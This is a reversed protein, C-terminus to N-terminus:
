AFLEPFLPEINNVPNNNHTLFQLEQIDKLNVRDLYKSYNASIERNFYELSLNDIIKHINIRMLLEKTIVRKSDFFVLSKLLNKAYISNLAIQVIISHTIDNFGLFYCTDDLMIPKNNKPLVLSFNLNKYFGSIAVKYLSFTYDGIGFISFIPRNNYIKSKRKNFLDLNSYLYRYTLPLTERIYKTCGGIRRQPIITYKNTNTVILRNLDSSKVLGYVLDEELIFKENKRNVYYDDIKEIEMIPACDHKVGQRWILGSDGDFKSNNLYLEIDSVFNNNVFGFHKEKISTDYLSKITCYNEPSSNLNLMLLSADVNVNFEKKANFSFQSIKSISFNYKKQHILLKRIVSNKILLAINGYFSSYLRLLLLIIAESIDFNSKGTMAEIGKTNSFNIKKPINNSELQGLQSNTVWPPNGLILLKDNKRLVIKKEFPFSFIDSNFFYINHTTTLKNELYYELIRLKAVWFYIKNIEICFIKTKHDLVKILQIIFNGIGATPEIIVTPYNQNINIKNIVKEVLDNPTQFDGHEIKNLNEYDINKRIINKVFDIEEVSSFFTDIGSINLIWANKLDLDIESFEISNLFDVVRTLNSSM